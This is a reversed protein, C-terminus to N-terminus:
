HRGNVGGDKAVTLQNNITSYTGSLKGGLSLLTSIAVVSIFALILAYEVLTQGRRARPSREIPHRFPKKDNMATKLRYAQAAIPMTM